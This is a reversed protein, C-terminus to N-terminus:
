VYLDVRHGLHPDRRLNRRHGPRPRDHDSAATAQRAAMRGLCDFARRWAAHDSLRTASPTVGAPRIAAVQPIQM